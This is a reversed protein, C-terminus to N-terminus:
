RTIPFTPASVDFVQSGASVENGRLTALVQVKLASDSSAGWEVVVGSRLTLTVADQTQAAISGVEASLEPPLSELVALAADLTRTDDGTLPITIVPLEAPAEPVTSVTVADRDLLAFGGEVPVSAVPERAVVRVSLGSPWQRVVSVDRINQVGMVEDHVDSTSLLALSTGEHQAVVAVVAAMDVTTGSGEVVLHDPDFAFLSSAFLVWSGGLLLAVGVTWAAVKRVLRHRRMSKQEALREAMGTSLVAVKPAGVVPSPRSVPAAIQSGTEPRAGRSGARRGTPM